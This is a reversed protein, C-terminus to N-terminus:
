CRECNAEWICKLALPDVDDDEDVEVVAQSTDGENVSMATLESVPSALEMPIATTADFLPGCLAVRPRRGASPM